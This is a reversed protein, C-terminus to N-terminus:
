CSERCPHTPREPNWLEHLGAVRSIKEMDIWIHHSTHIRSLTFPVTSGSHAAGVDGIGFQHHVEHGVTPSRAEHRTTACYDEKAQIEPQTGPSRPSISDTISAESILESVEMKLLALVRKVM